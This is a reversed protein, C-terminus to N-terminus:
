MVCIDQSVLYDPKQDMIEDKEDTGQQMLLLEARKICGKTRPSPSVKSNLPACIHLEEERM